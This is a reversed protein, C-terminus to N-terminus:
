SMHNDIFAVLDSERYRVASGIKCFPIKHRKTSRWLNMTQPKIGLLKAAEKTTILGELKNEM